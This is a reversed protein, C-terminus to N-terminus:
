PILSLCHDIINCFVVFNNKVVTAAIAVIFVMSSGCAGLM